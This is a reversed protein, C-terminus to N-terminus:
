PHRIHDDAIRRDHGLDNLLKALRRRDDGVRVFKRERSWVTAPRAQEPVPMLRIPSSKFPKKGVDSGIGQDHHTIKRACNRPGMLRHAMSKGTGIDDDQRLRFVILRRVAGNFRDALATEHDRLRM